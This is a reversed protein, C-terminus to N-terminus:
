HLAAGPQWGRPCALRPPPRPPAGVRRARRGAMRVDTTDVVGSPICFYLLFGAAPGRRGAHKTALAHGLEHCALALVNLGLLVAAGVAYSDGTLFVQKDAQIWSLCFVALGSLAILGCVVAAVRPFLLRGAFRSLFGILPDVNALVGRRGRAAALLGRGFRVPFPRRQVRGLPRFADVPLEALMRNGALDAVVRTVQDPALRGSLKAFEAVLRAVT